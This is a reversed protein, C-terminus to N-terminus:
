RAPPRENATGAPASLFRVLTLAPSAASPESESRTSSSARPEGGQPGILLFPALANSTARPVFPAALVRSTPRRQGRIESSPFPDPAFVLGRSGTMLVGVIDPVAAVAGSISADGLLELRPWAPHFAALQRREPHYILCLPGPVTSKSESSASLASVPVFAQVPAAAQYALAPDPSASLLRRASIPGLSTSGAPVSVSVLEVGRASILLSCLVDAHPTAIPLAFAAGPERLERRTGTPSVVVLTTFDARSEDSAIARSTFALSGDPLLTAHASVSPNQVLWRLPGADWPALAIHRSGDAQPAEILFGEANSARGLVVGSLSSGANRSPTIPRPAADSLDYIAISSSFPQSAEPLALLTAWSPPQGQQVALRSGDPSPIPLSQGDYEVSGLPQVGFRLSTSSASAVPTAIPAAPAKSAAKNTPRAPGGSKVPVGRSERRTSVSQDENAGAANMNGFRDEPLTTTETVCGSAALLAVLPALRLLRKARIPSPTRRM